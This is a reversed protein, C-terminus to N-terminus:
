SNFLSGQDSPPLFDAQWHLLYLNLGQTPFIGLLLFHYGVGTNIGPSNQLSSGLLRCDM